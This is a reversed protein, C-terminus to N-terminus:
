TPSSCDSASEVLRRVGTTSNPRLSENSTVALEAIRPVMTGSAAVFAARETFCLRAYLSRAPGNSERVLLTMCDCGAAAAKELALEVLQRGLGRGRAESRVALQALHATSPALRTVIAAGDLAEGGAAVQSM